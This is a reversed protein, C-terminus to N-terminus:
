ATRQKERLRLTALVATEEASLGPLPEIKAESVAELAQALAGENYLDIVDPHVYCRRCIARTNGLHGAVEDIAQLLNRKAETASSFPEMEQLSKAALVTGGWTRFDKATFDQGTIERLYANVDASGIQRREGDDDIYQFLQQGKIDRCQRVIRALRRDKVGVSHQKGSKGKFLFRITSEDVEVHRDRMTTLGYSQNSIAYEKNGVRIMSKELLAVVTALVKERPLGQKRLDSDVRERIEPLAEAFAITRQYKNEDRIERWRPHYRYQKRGKADRGTAQIHGEPVPSIWVDTWAPPIALRKIRTLVAEDRVPRGEADVYRFGTKTKKRRIGPAEDPFYLLDDCLEPPGPLPQKARAPKPTVTTVL